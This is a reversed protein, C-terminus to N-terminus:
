AADWLTRVRAAEARGQAIGAAVLDAVRAVRMLNDGFLEVSQADPMILTMTGNAQEIAARERALMANIPALTDGRAVAVVLVREYGAVLDANTWSRVGGDMWQSGQISVPPHLGPVSCSAAVARELSVDDAKRWLKFAGDAAGVTCCGFRDSWAATPGFMGAFVTLFQAEPMVKAALAIRGLAAMASASPESDYPRKSMFEILHDTNVPPEPPRNRVPDQAARMHMQALAQPNIGTGLQAGVFSGASTGLIFDAHAIDLGAASLGASLGIEWAIGAQGGAGLVLARRKM